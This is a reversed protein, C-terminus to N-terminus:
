SSVPIGRMGGICMDVTVEGLSKAGHTKKLAKLREQFAALSTDAFSRLSLVAVLCLPSRTLVQEAPIKEALVAKLDTNTTLTRMASVVAGATLGNSAAAQCLLGSLRSLMTVLVQPVPPNLVLCLGHVPWGRIPRLTRSACTPRGLNASSWVVPIMFPRTM